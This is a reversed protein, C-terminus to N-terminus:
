IDKWFKSSKFHNLEKGVPTKERKRKEEEMFTVILKKGSLMNM